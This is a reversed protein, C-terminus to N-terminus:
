PQPATQELKLTKLWDKLVGAHRNQSDAVLLLVRSGDALTPGLCMGEYNAFSRGFLSLTTRWEHLMTKTQTETVFRYLKCHVFAGIKAKPVYAERELLLLSGDDLACLTGVGHAYQTAKAASALPPDLRYPYSHLPRGISDFSQIVISDSENCTWLLNRKSDYSLAELGKNAPLQHYFPPLTAERLTRMGDMRYEMIRNDAEGVMWLTNALSNYAIGENDRAAFGSSRFGLNRASRIDGTLSDTVIDFIFFGDRDAKDSVVAYHTGGLWAIGSYNGPPISDAFAHQRNEVVRYQAQLTLPSLLCLWLLTTGITKMDKLVAAAHPYQGIRPTITEKSCLHQARPAYNNHGQLILTMGGSFLLSPPTSNLSIPCRRSGTAAHPYHLPSIIAAVRAFLAKKIQFFSVLATYKCM